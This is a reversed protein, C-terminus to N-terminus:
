VNLDPLLIELRRISRMFNANSWQRHRTLREEILITVNKIVFRENLSLTGTGTNGSESTAAVEQYLRLLPSDYKDLSEVPDRADQAAVILNAEAM